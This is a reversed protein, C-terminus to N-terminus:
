EQTNNALVEGEIVRTKPKFMESRSLLEDNQKIIEDLEREDKAELGTISIQKEEPAFAGKVKYALEVGKSLAFSDETTYETILDGKKYTKVKIKAKLLKKHAKLIMKDPITKLFARVLNEKGIYQSPNRSTSVAYGVSQMAKSIPERPNNEVIKLVEVQKALSQAQRIPMNKDLLTSTKEDNEENM